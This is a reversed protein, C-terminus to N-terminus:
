SLLHIDSIYIEWVVNLYTMGKNQDLALTQSGLANCIDVLSFFAKTLVRKKIGSINMAM